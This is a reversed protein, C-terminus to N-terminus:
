DVEVARRPPTAVDAGAAVIPKQAGFRYHGSIPYDFLMDDLKPGSGINHAIRPRGTTPSPRDTVIGIHPLNGPLMWTVLEGPRYDDADRSIPLVEGWREFFRQLNPVRRHDINPDPRTLGWIQPYSRFALRMDEHVLQQLDIGIGRYARIVVDSCVGVDNPVDGLPYAIKRYSGDYRVPHLTREIAATVLDAPFEYAHAAGNVALLTAAALLTRKSIQICRSILASATEGTPQLPSGLNGVRGPMLLCPPCGGGDANKAASWGLGGRM